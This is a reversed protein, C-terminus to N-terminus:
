ENESGRTGFTNRIAQMVLAATLHATGSDAARYFKVADNADNFLRAIERDYAACVKDFDKEMVKEM